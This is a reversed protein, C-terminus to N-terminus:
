LLKLNRVSYKNYLKIQAFDRCVRRLTCQPNRVKANYYLCLLTFYPVPQKCGASDDCKELTLFITTIKTITWGEDQMKRSFQKYTQVDNISAPALIIKKM